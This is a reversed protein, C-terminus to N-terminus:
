NRCKLGWYVPIVIPIYCIYLCDISKSDTLKLWLFKNIFIFMKIADFSIISFTVPHLPIIFLFYDIEPNKLM